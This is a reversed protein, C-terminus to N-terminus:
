FYYKLGLQMKRSGSSVGSYIRGFTTSTMTLTPSRFNPHNLLSSFDVRFEVYQKETVFTRKLIGLDLSFAGPGRFYNRTTDGM